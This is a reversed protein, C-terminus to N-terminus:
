FFDTNGTQASIPLSYVVQRRDVTECNKSPEVIQVSKKYIKLKNLKNLAWVCFISLKIM